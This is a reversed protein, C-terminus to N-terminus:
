GSLMNVKRSNQELIKIKEARKNFGVWFYDYGEGRM